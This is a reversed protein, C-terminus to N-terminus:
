HVYLPFSVCVLSFNSPSYWGDYVFSLHEATVESEREKSKNLNHPSFPFFSERHLRDICSFTLALSSLAGLTEIEKKLSTLYSIWAIYTYLYAYIYLYVYVHIYLTHIRQWLRTHIHSHTSTGPEPSTPSTM